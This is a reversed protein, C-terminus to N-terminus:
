LHRTESIDLDRSKVASLCTYSFQSLPNVRWSEKVMVKALKPNYAGYSLQKQLNM